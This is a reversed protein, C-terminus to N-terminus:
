IKNLYYAYPDVLGPYVKIGKKKGKGIRLETGLVKPSLIYNIVDGNCQAYLGKRSNAVKFLDEDSFHFNFLTCYWRLNKMITKPKKWQKVMIVRVRHRIWQGTERMFGKMSGIRYYNIWGRLIENVKQITKTLPTAAATRRCTVARLKDWLRAKRSNLPKCKWTDRDKWFGFGLFESKSPPVVQTKSASVRLFLKREIWSSVTQM